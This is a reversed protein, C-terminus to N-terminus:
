PLFAPVPGGPEIAEIIFKKGDVTKSIEVRGSQVVYVWDGSSGEKYIVEGDQYSEETAIHYSSIM